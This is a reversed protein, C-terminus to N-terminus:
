SPDITVTYQIQDATQLTASTHDGHVVLVGGTAATWLGANTITQPGTVCTLTGIAQYKASAGSGTKSVTAALRLVNGPDTNLATFVDTDAKAATGAGTGWGLYEPKTQVTENIKDVIFEEGANTIVIAARLAVAFFITRFISKIV